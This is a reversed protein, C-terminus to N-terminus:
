FACQGRFKKPVFQPVDQQHGRTSASYRKRLNHWAKQAETTKGNFRHIDPAEGIGAQNIKGLSVTERGVICRIKEQSM